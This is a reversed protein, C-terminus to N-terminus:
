EWNRTMQEGCFLCVLDGEGYNNFPVIVERAYGCNHCKYRKNQHIDYQKNM